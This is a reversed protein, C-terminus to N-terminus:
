QKIKKKCGKKGWLSHIEHMLYFIREAKGTQRKNGISIGVTFKHANFSDFKNLGKIINQM